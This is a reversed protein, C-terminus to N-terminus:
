QRGRFKVVIKYQQEATVPFFVPEITVNKKQLQAIYTELANTDVLSFNSVGFREQVLATLERRVTEHVEIVQEEEPLRLEDVLFYAAAERRMDGSVTNTLYHWLHAADTQGIFWRILELSKTRAGFFFAIICFRRFQHQRLYHRLGDDDIPTEFFDCMADLAANFAIHTPERLGNMGPISFLWGPAHIMAIDVLRCHLHEILAIQQEVVPPIPRAEEQRVDGAGSKGNRFCLFTRSQDLCGVVKQRLLEAQRRGSLPGITHEFAGFFVLINELLGRRGRFEKYYRERSWRGHEMTRYRRRGIMWSGAHYRLSWHQVGMRQAVPNLFERIDYKQTLVSPSVGEAKAAELVNVYSDFLAEGYDLTFEVGNEIGDVV